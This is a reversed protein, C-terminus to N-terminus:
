AHIAGGKRAKLSDFATQCDPHVRLNGEVHWHFADGLGQRMQYPIELARACVPCHGVMVTIYGNKM